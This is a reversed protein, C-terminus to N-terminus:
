YCSLRVHNHIASAQLHFSKELVKLVENLNGVPLTGTFLESLYNPCDAEITVGYNAEIEKLVLALEMNRFVMDGRRWASHERIDNETTVSIHGQRDLVARQNAQLVVQQRSQTSVLLVSGEELTVEASDNEERVQLNFITGLVKIELIKAQIRFPMGPAKCVQFYGEGDFTVVRERKHYSQPHYALKSDANLSVKTGDPLRVDAREGSGTSVVTEQSLVRDNERYLYLTLVVFVPLLVAAAVQGWRLFAVRRSPKGGVSADIKAKLRRMRENDVSSTDVEEDMWAPQLDQGLEEDSMANVEDRLQRLEEASLTDDRYKHGLTDM